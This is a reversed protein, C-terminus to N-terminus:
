KDLKRKLEITLLYKAYELPDDSSIHETLFDDALEDLNMNEVLMNLISDIAKEGGMEEAFDNFYTNIMEEIIEKM